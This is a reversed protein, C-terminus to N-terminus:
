RQGVLSLSFPPVPRSPCAAVEVVPLNERKGKEKRKENLNTELAM